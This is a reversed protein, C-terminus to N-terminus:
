VPLGKRAVLLFYGPKGCGGRKVAEACTFGELSGGAFILDAALRTLAPTHDEWMVTDFGSRQLLGRIKKEPLAGECCSAGSIREQLPRNGRLYLDSMVLAGGPRLVRRFEGLALMRDVLLSVTCECFVADLCDDVLCLGHLDAQVLSDRDGQQEVARLKDLSRDLGVARVGPFTDLLALTAGFGCGADLVRAKDPLDVLDLAHRTIDLGGPRLPGGTIRHLVEHRRCDDGVDPMM